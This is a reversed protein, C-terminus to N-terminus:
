QYFGDRAKSATNIADLMCDEISCYKWDGYRGIIYVHRNELLSKLKCTTEISKKTIHVYAPNMVIAEHAVLNHDDIIGIKKLSDLTLSLQKSIEEDTIQFEGPYGIEIYMSLNSTGIINNYFGARYFNIDKSPVYIWHVNKDKSPKDFGLNFVLVQNYSFVPSDVADSLDSLEVFQNLPISSILYDYRYENKDTKVASKKTDIVIAKENYHIRNSNIAELLKEVFVSAGQKPYLFSQNYSSNNSVKMNRIIDKVDAYPFFRGMAEVDLLNLDCAYLKENYPRLFKETIGEGFKGYLMDLFSDYQRKETKEFLGYLCDIMEEKSLQHINKQFPYDVYYGNYYIRTDKVRFVTDDSSTIAEFKKKLEPHSFHFFHGAYDWVYEGTRTTRCYGGAESEKEVILYDDKGIMNAFSLGSVGAGLILYKVYEM